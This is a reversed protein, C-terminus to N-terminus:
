RTWPGVFMPAKAESRTFAYRAVLFESDESPARPSPLPSFPAASAASGGTLAAEVDVDAFGADRLKHLMKMTRFADFFGHVRIRLAMESKAEATAGLLAARTDLEGLAELIPPSVAPGIGAVEDMFRDADAHVAFRDLAGLVSALGAFVRPSHFPPSEGSLARAVAAGTGFPTRASSRSRLRVPSRLLRIVSGVKAIKNLLYFDEAADRKPYGRVSVYAQVSVALASGLTHFAYPSRAWALGAVYYRLSLEYLATARTVRADACAQHWFPFLVAAVGQHTELEPLDFHGVPLTADADTSFVFPSKLAGRTHLSVAIDTGMKRALGVGAKLPLRAGPSARDLVLVDLKALPLAGIFAACPGDVDRVRKLRERLATLLEANRSAFTEANTGEDPGNVVLVLLTRGKSTQAAAVYGDLLTAEEDCAPVVLAREYPGEIARAFATEPEAWQELYKSLAHM